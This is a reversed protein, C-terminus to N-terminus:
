KDQLSANKLGQKMMYALRRELIPGILFNLVNNQLYFEASGILFLSAGEEQFIYKQKMEGKVPIHVKFSMEKQEKFTLTTHKYRMPVWLIKTVDYWTSGKKLPEPVIVKTVFPVYSPYDEVASIYKWMNKKKNKEVKTKILLKRM